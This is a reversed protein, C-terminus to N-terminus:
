EARGQLPAAFGISYSFHNSVKDTIATRYQFNTFLFTETSLKFQVGLGFPIYAGWYSSYKSVGVGATFYPNVIYRDRLLKLNLNADAELLFKDSGERQNNEYTYDVFSGGLTAMFDVHENLGQLYNISLGPAMQSFNSWSGERFVTSLSSSKILQATRFDNMLFNIALTPKKKYSSVNQGFSIIVMLLFSFLSLTKKM